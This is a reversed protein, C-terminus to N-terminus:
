PRGVRGEVLDIWRDEGGGPLASEAPYEVVDVGVSGLRCADDVYPLTDHAPTVLLFDEPTIRRAIVALHGARHASDATVALSLSRRGLDMYSALWRLWGAVQVDVPAASSLPLRLTADLLESELTSIAQGWHMVAQVWAAQEKTQLLESAGAFWQDLSTENVVTRWSDDEDGGSVATVDLDRPSFILEVDQSSALLREVEAHVEELRDLVRMAGMVTDGTPGPWIPTPLGVYFCLPFSRGQSDGGYDAISSLVTVNSKPLRVVWSSRPVGARRNDTTGSRNRYVVFGELIWDHFEVTWDGDTPSSYYDGYTPLKGFWRLAPDPTSLASDSGLPINRRPM